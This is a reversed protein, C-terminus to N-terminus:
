LRWVFVFYVFLPVKRKYIIHSHGQGQVGVAKTIIFLFILGYQYILWRVAQVKMDCSAFWIMWNGKFWLAVLCFGGVINVLGLYWVVQEVNPFLYCILM